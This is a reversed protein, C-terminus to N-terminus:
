ANGRHHAVQGFINGAHLHDLGKGLFIGRLLTKIADVAGIAIGTHRGHREGKEEQGRDLKQAHHRRRNDEPKTPARDDVFPHRQPHQDGKQGVDGAEELRDLVQALKVGGHLLGHGATFPHQTQEVGVGIHGVRCIALWHPRDLPLNRQPPHIEVVALVRRHQM